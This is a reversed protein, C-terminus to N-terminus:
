DVISNASGEIMAINVVVSEIKNSIAKQEATVEVVSQVDTECSQKALKTSNEYDSVVKAQDEITKNAVAIDAIYQYNLYGSVSLLAGLTLIIYFSITNLM